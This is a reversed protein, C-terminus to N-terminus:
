PGSALISAAATLGEVTGVTVLVDGEGFIFAPTPSPIPAGARIVAVVSVGTKTRLQTDGLPHDVFPTGPEIPLWDVVIGEAAEQLHSLAQSFSSGGLLETLTHAEAATLEVSLATLDSDDPHSVFLDIQGHQRRVVGVRRGGGAVFELRLGVGPLPTREVKVDQPSNM